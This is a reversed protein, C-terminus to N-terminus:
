GKSAPAQHRRRDVSTDPHDHLGIANGSPDFVTGGHKDERHVRAGKSELFSAAKVFDQVHLQLPSGLGQPGLGLPVFDASQFLVLEGGGTGIRVRGCCTRHTEDKVDFGLLDHYFPLSTTLDRVHIVLVGVDLVLANQEAEAM